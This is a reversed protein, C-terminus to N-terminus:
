CILVTIYTRSTQEQLAASAFINHSEQVNDLELSNTLTATDDWIVKNNCSCALYITETGCVVCVDTCNLFQHYLQLFM